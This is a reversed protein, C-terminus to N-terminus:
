EAIYGGTSGFGGRSRTDVEFVEVIEPRLYRIIELQAIKEGRSIVVPEYLLEPHELHEKTIPYHLLIAIEDNQGCYDRDIIGIGNAIILGKKLPLSSRSAVIAHYGVPMDVLVLNLPVKEISGPYIEVTERAYLDIAVSGDTAYSNFPLSRDIRYIKLTPQEDRQLIM